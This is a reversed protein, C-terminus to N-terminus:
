SRQPRKPIWGCRDLIYFLVFVVSAIGGAGIAWDVWTPFNIMTEVVIREGDWYLRNQDDIGLRDLDELGITRPAGM